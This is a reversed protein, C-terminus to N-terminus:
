PNGQSAHFSPLRPSPMSTMRARTLATHAAGSSGPADRDTIYIAPLEGAPILASVALQVSEVRQATQQPSQGQLVFIVRRDIPNDTLISRIHNRGADTLGNSQADFLVHGVTNHMKWGNERQVAFYSTVADIDQLKFPSPWRTNRYFTTWFSSPGQSCAPCGCGAHGHPHSSGQHSHQYHQAQPSRYDVPVAPPVSNGSASYGLQEGSQQAVLPFGSLTTFVAFGFLFTLRSM